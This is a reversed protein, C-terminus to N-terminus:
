IDSYITLTKYRECKQIGMLLRLDTEYLLWLSDETQAHLEHFGQM